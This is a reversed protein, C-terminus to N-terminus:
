HKLEHAFGRQVHRFSKQLAKHALAAGSPPFLVHHRIEHATEGATRIFVHAGQRVPQPLPVPIRLLRLTKNGGGACNGRGHKIAPAILKALLNIDGARIGLAHALVINQHGSRLITVGWPPGTRPGTVPGVGPGARM